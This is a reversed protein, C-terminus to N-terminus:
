PDPIGPKPIPLIILILPLESLDDNDFPSQTMPAKYHDYSIIMSDFRRLLSGNTVIFRYLIQLM